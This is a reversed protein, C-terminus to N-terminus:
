ATQLAAVLEATSLVTQALTPGNMVLRQTPNILGAWGVCLIIAVSATLNM